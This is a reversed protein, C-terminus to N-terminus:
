SSKKMLPVYKQAAAQASIFHLGAICAQNEWADVSQTTLGLVGVKIPGIQKIAYPAGFAPQNNQDLINASVFQRDCGAIAAKLYAQGYNFEHNGITGFDYDITNFAANIATPAGAREVEAQYYALPSGELFIAMM